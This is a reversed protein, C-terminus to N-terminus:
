SVLLPSIIHSGKFASQVLQFGGGRSLRWMMGHLYNALRFLVSLSLDGDSLVREWTAAAVQLPLEGRLAPRSHSEWARIAELVAAEEDDAPDDLALGLRRKCVYNNRGQLVAANVSIGGRRLLPLDSSRLQAQLSRTYTSVAVRRDNAKAWLAAPVLYALSKGTGTGAEVLLPRNAELADAVRHAMALQAPRHEHDPLAQALGNRFFQEMAERDIPADRRAHPEVVFNSRTVRSDVIVFGVGDEGYRAALQLDARSPRLDGTPHNHVVVQGSRPRDVLALVRDETGRCTIVVGTVIGREVDGIAFVEVGDAIEIARRLTQAAETNFRLQVSM